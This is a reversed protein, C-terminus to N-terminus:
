NYNNYIYNDNGESRRLQHHCLLQPHPLAIPVVLDLRM